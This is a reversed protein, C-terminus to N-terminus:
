YRRDNETWDIDKLPDIVEEGWNVILRSDKLHLYDLVVYGLSEFMPILTKMMKIKDSTVLKASFDAFTIYAYTSGTTKAHESIKNLLFKLRQNALKDLVRQNIMDASASLQLADKANLKRFFVM